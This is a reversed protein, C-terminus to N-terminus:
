FCSLRDCQLQLLGRRFDRCYNSSAEITWDYVNGAMDYINKVSYDSNSGTAIRKNGEEQTGAYNGKKTGDTVYGKTSEDKLFWKMTADWQCGWIMSSSVGTGQVITKSKQYQVYWNQNSIDTNGKAVVAKDTSLNGTEYRGIYFGGYKEVSEKMAKFEKQLQEKFESANTIGTIGANEYYSSTNDCSTVADPERHSKSNTSNTWSMVGNTETWNLAIPKGSSFDYIKGLCNEDKDKGFMESPNTVPIWVFENQTGDQKIVFGGDVRKEGAEKSPTFGIPVPVIINDESIAEYIKAMPLTPETGPKEPTEEAGGQGVLAINNAAEGIYEATNDIMKEEKVQGEAYNETGKTAIGIFNSDFAAKITVAVLIILIIITIILAVLTIGKENKM